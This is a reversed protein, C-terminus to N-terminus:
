HVPPEPVQILNMKFHPIASHISHDIKLILDHIESNELM